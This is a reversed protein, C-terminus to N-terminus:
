QKKTHFMRKLTEDKDFWHHKLSAGVHGASLIIIVVSLWYHFQGSLTEMNSVKGTISPVKLWDFLAVAHGDATSILYGSIPILLMLLYLVRHAWKAMTIQLKTDAIPQPKPNIQRWVLRIILLAFFLLGLSEHWHTSGHYWDDYYTLEVMYLGLGFLGFIAIASLWHMIISPWGYHSQSNKLM